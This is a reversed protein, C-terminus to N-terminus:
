KKGCTNKHVTHWHATQCDASCYSVSDCGTCAGVVAPSACAMCMGAGTAAAGLYEYQEYRTMRAVAANFEARTHPALPSYMAPVNGEAARMLIRALATPDNGDLTGALFKSLADPFKDIGAVPSMSHARLWQIMSFHIIAAQAVSLVGPRKDYQFFTVAPGPFAGRDVLNSM